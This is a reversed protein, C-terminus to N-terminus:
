KSIYLSNVTFHNLNKLPMMGRKQFKWQNRKFGHHFGFVLAAPTGMARRGVWEQKRGVLQWSLGPHDGRPGGPGRFDTTEM